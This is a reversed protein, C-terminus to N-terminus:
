SLRTELEVVQRGGSLGFRTEVGKVLYVGDKEPYEAHTIQVAEGPEVKPVLFTEFDGEFGEYKLRSLQEEAFIRLDAEDMNFQFITRIQGDSDGVFIEIQTNDPFLSVAKIRFKQDEEKRYILRTDDIINADPTGYKFVHPSTLNPPDPFALGVNLTGDALFYASLGYNRKLFGLVQTVSLPDEIRFNGLNADLANFSVAAPLIKTLLDQLSTKTLNLPQVITQKLSFMDNEIEFRLPYTPAIDSIFGEFYTFLQPRYGLQIAVAQGRKFLPDAGSVVDTVIQNGRKFVLNRPIEISGGNTLNDVGKYFAVEAIFNLNVPGLAIDSIPILAM